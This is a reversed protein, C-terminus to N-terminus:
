AIIHRVAHTDETVIIQYKIPLRGVMCNVCPKMDTYNEYVSTVRHDSWRAHKWQTVHFQYELMNIFFNRRLTCFWTEFWSHQSLIRSPTRWRFMSIHTYYVAAFFILPMALWYKTYTFDNNELKEFPSWCKVIQAVGSRLSRIKKSMTSYFFM